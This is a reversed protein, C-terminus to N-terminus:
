QEAEIAAAGNRSEGILCKDNWQEAGSSKIHPASVHSIIANAYCLHGAKKKKEKLYKM